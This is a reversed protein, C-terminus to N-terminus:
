PRAYRQGQRLTEDGASTRFLTPFSELREGLQNSGVEFHLHPRTSYGTNGSWGLQTGATVRQGRAVTIGQKRLHTYLAISGDSHLVRVHNGRGKFQEQHGHGEFSDVTWVVTGARAALVQSGEPMMFDLAYRHSDTHSFSGNYGQGVLVESGRDFPLEYVFDREPRARYDGLLYRYKYRFRWPQRPDKRRFHLLPGRQGPAAVKLCPQGCDVSTNSFEPFEFRLTYPAPEPNVINVTQAARDYNLSLAPRPIPPLSPEAASIGTATLLAPALTIRFLRLRIPM